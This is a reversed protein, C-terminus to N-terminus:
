FERWGIMHEEPFKKTGDANYNMDTYRQMQRWLDFVTANLIEYEVAAIMSLALAVMAWKIISFTTSIGLVM